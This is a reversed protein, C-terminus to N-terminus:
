ENSNMGSSDFLQFRKSGVIQLYHLFNNSSTGEYDFNKYDKEDDSCSKFLKVLNKCIQNGQNNQTDPEFISTCQEAAPYFDGFM